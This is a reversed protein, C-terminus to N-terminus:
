FPAVVLRGYAVIGALAALVLGVPWNLKERCGAHFAIALLMLVAIAAAAWATLQPYIGLAAPLVMAAAALVAAAAIAVLLPRTGAGYRALGRQMKAYDPKLGHTYAVSLLKIALIIQLAWLVVNM